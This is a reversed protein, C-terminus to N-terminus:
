NKKLERLVAFPNDEHRRGAPPEELVAELPQSGPKVPFAPLALLLEDEIVKAPELVGGEVLLPEYGPPLAAEEREHGIVGLRVDVDLPYEFVELTRQCLLNLRTRARVALFAVGLSERGFELEYEVSGRADALAECLRGLSAVPLVGRFQRRAEVMRGADVREPLTASMLTFHYGVVAPLDLQSVTRM